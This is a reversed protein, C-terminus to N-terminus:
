VVVELLDARLCRYLERAICRKLCRIIERKSLGEAQRRAACARTRPCYRLRVIAIMHLTRNAQRDGGLNLRHRRTLGSSASIPNAACLHAFAAENRFRQINQGATVLM